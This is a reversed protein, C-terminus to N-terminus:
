CAWINWTLKKAHIHDRKSSSRHIKNRKTSAQQNLFAVDLDYWRVELKFYVIYNRDHELDLAPTLITSSNKVGNWFFAEFGPNVCQNRKVCCAKMIEDNFTSNVIISVIMVLGYYRQTSNFHMGFAGKKRQLGEMIYRWDFRNKLNKQPNVVFFM